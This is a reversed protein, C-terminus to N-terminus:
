YSIYLEKFERTKNFALGIDRNKNLDTSETVYRFNQLFVELAGIKFWDEYGFETTIYNYYTVSGQIDEILSGTINQILKPM